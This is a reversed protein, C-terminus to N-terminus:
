RAPLVDLPNVPVGKRRVEFHVLPAANGSAGATAIAQGRTVLQGQQVLISKVRAYATRVGDAHLLVILNGYERPSGTYSVEGDAAARVQADESAAIDVGKTRVPDFATVVKGEVPWVWTVGAGSGSAATPPAGAPAESAAAGGAASLEPLGAAAPLAPPAPPAVPALPAAALEHTEVTSAGGPAIAHVEAEEPAMAAEATPAAAQGSPTAAGPPAVRLRQGVFIPAGEAVGSWRAIDVVSVHFNGAIRYLTDGKQVTYMGQSADAGTGVLRPVATGARTSLDIVPADNLATESCAALAMAGALQLVSIGPRCKAVVIAQM